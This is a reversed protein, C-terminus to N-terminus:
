KKESVWKTKGFLGKKQVLVEAQNDFVAVENKNNSVDTTANENNSVYDNINYVGTSGIKNNLESISKNIQEINNLIDNIQSTNKIIDQINGSLDSLVSIIKNFYENMNNINGNTNESIAYLQNIIDENYKFSNTSNNERISCFPSKYCILKMNCSSCKSVTGCLSYDNMQVQKNLNNVYM